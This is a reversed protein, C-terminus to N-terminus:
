GRVVRPVGDKFIRTVEEMKCVDAQVLFGDSGLDRIKALTAKAANENRYYHVAVKAGKEALKLAIGRASAM